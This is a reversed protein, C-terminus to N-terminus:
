SITIVAMVLLWVVLSRIMLDQIMSIEQAYDERLQEVDPLPKEAESRSPEACGSCVGLAALGAGDIIQRTPKSLSFIADSWAAFCRAFNGAIAFTFGLVRVPLWEIAHLLWLPTVPQGAEHARKEYLCILRIFLAMLPGALLYWFLVLFVQEFWQYLIGSRVNEQLSVVEDAFFDQEINFHEAAFHYAGQTDGARWRQLYQQTSQLLNDRGLSYFLLAAHLAVGLLGFLGDELLSLLWGAAAIPALLTVLLRPTPQEIWGAVKDSWQFFWRDYRSPVRLELLKYCGLTILLVLFTM